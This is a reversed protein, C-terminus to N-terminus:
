APTKTAPPSTANICHMMRSSCFTHLTNHKVVHQLLPKIFQRIWGTQQFQADTAALLACVTSADTCDTVIKRAWLTFHKKVVSLTMAVGSITMGMDDFFYQLLSVFLEWRLSHLETIKEPIQFIDVMYPVDNFTKNPLSLVVCCDNCLEVMSVDITHRIVM